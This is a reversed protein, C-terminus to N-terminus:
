LVNAWYKTSFPQLDYTRSSRIKAPEHLFSVDQFHKLVTSLLVVEQVACLPPRISSASVRSAGQFAVLQTADMHWAASLGM